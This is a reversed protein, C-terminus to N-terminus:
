YFAYAEIMKVTDPITINELQACFEFANYCIKTISDPITYSAGTKKSPYKVIETKAKNFLIGDVSCYSSNGEDVYIATLSTLGSLSEEYITTCSAPITLSTITDGALFAGNSIGRVVCGDLTSPLTVDGSLHASIDTIMAGGGILEYTYDGSTIEAAQVAMGTSMVPLLGIVTVIALLMAIIRKAM